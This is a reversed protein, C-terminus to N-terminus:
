GASASVMALGSESGTPLQNGSSTVGYLMTVLGSANRVATLGCLPESGPTAGGRGTFQALTQVTNTSLNM